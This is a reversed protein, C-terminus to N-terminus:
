LSYPCDAGVPSFLACLPVDYALSIVHLHPFTPFRKGQEWAGLISVSVGLDEAVAKLPLKRNMRWLRLRQGFEQLSICGRVGGANQCSIRCAETPEAASGAGNM